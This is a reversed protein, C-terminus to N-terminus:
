IVNLLSLVYLVKGSNDNLITKHLVNLSTILCTEYFNINFYYHFHVCFRKKIVQSKLTCVEFAPCLSEVPKECTTDRSM